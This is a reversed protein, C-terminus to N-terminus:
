QSIITLIAPAAFTKSYDGESVQLLIGAEILKEVNQQASRYTVDLLAQAQPITLV